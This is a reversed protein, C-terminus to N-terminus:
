DADERKRKRQRYLEGGEKEEGRNNQQREREQREFLPGPGRKLGAHTSPRPAVLLMRRVIPAGRPGGEEKSNTAVVKRSEAVGEVHFGSDVL